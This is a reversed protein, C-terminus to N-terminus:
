NRLLNYVFLLGDVQLRRRHRRSHRITEYGKGIEFLALREFRCVWWSVCVVSLLVLLTPRYWCEKRPITLASFYGVRTAM